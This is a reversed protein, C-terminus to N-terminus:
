RTEFNTKGIKIGVTAIRNLAQQTAIREDNTIRM